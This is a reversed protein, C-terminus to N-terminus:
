RSTSRTWAPMNIKRGRMSCRYASATSVLLDDPSSGHNRIGTGYLTLFVPMDIGVDIPLARCPMSSCDFLPVPFQV